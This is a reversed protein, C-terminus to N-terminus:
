DVGFLDRTYVKDAVDKIDDSLRNALIVDSEAKFAELDRVVRSNFFQDDQLVPEYVIVEIRISRRVRYHVWYRLAPHYPLEAPVPAATRPLLWWLAVGVNLIALVVILFRTLM